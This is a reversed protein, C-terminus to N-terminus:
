ICGCLDFGCLYKIDSRMQFQQPLIIQFNKSTDLYSYIKNHADLHKLFLALFPHNLPAEPMTCTPNTHSYLFRSFIFICILFAYVPLCFFFLPFHFICLSLWHNLQLVNFISHTHRGPFFICICACLHVCCCASVCSLAAMIRVRQMTPHRQQVSLM